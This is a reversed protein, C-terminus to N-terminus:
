YVMSISPGGRWSRARRIHAQNWRCESASIFRFQYVKPYSYFNKMDNKDTYSQIEDARTSLWPAQTKRQIQQISNYLSRLADKKTTCQPDHFHALHGAHKKGIRDMIKVHM